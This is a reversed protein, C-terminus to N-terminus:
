LSNKDSYLSPLSHNFLHTQNALLRARQELGNNINMAKEMVATFEQIRRKTVFSQVNMVYSEIRLMKFLGEFKNNYSLAAVPTGVSIALIAPHLRGGVLLDLKTCLARYDRSSELEIIDSKGVPLQDKILECIRKDGEHDSSYSPLLLLHINPNAVLTNLSKALCNVLDASSDFTDPNLKATIKRPFLRYRPPFWRRPAVGILTLNSDVSAHKLIEDGVTPSYNKTVILAPDPVITVKKSTVLQATAQAIPDRVSVISMCKFALRAFIRSVPNRLPGVGLSYGIVIKCCLRMLLIKITWYPVKILSDDDQILGGGGILILDSKLAVRILRFEQLVGKQVVAVKGNFLQNVREPIYSAVTIRASPYISLFSHCMSDEIAQDGLNKDADGALILINIRKNM